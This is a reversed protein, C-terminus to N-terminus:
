QVEYRDTTTTADDTITTLTRADTGWCDSAQKENARTFLTTVFSTSVDKVSELKSAAALCEYTLSTMLAVVVGGLIFVNSFTHKQNRGLVKVVPSNVKRDNGSTPLLLPLGQRGDLRTHSHTRARARASAREARKSGM